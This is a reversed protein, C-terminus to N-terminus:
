DIANSGQRFHEPPERNRIVEQWGINRVLMSSAAEVADLGGEATPGGRGSDGWDGISDGLQSAYKAEVTGIRM